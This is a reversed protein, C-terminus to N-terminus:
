AWLPLSEWNEPFGTQRLSFSPNEPFSSFHEKVRNAWTSTPNITKLLFQLAAAAAYLRTQSMRNQMIHHLSGDDTAKPAIPMEVLPANWVRSHHACANRVGNIARLWSQLLEPRINGFRQSIARKDIYRMGSFFFSLTGFDWVEVGAWIPIDIHPYKIQFHSVFEERSRSIQSQYKSIWEEHGTRGSKKLKNCFNGDLMQPELHAVPSQSGLQDAIAVRVGVEVREIADLLLLRLRKDFVYLALVSEFDSNPRFNDEVETKPSGGAQEIKASRRMPYWYGSLRYYGIRRLCSEAKAHDSIVMGREALKALLQPITEYPKPYGDM